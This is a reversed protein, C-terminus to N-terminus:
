KVDEMWIAKQETEIEQCIAGFYNSITNDLQRAESNMELMQNYRVDNAMAISGKQLFIIAFEAIQCHLEARKRVAELLSAWKYDTEQPVKLSNYVELSEEYVSKYQRMMGITETSASGVIRFDDWCQQWLNNARFEANTREVITNYYDSKRKINEKRIELQKKREDRERAEKKNAQYESTLQSAINNNGSLIDPSYEKVFNAFVIFLVFFILSTKNKGEKLGAVFHVCSIGGLMMGGYYLIALGLQPDSNLRAGGLMLLLLALISWIIGWRVRLHDNHIKMGCEPCFKEGVDLAHGCKVCKHM